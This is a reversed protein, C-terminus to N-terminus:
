FFRCEQLLQISHDRALAYIIDLYASVNHPAGAEALADNAFCETWICKSGVSCEPMSDVCLTKDNLTAAAATDYIYNHMQRGIVAAERIM